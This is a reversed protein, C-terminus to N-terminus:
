YVPHRFVLWMSTGEFNTRSIYLLGYNDIFNDGTIFIILKTMSLLTWLWLFQMKKNMIWFSGFNTTSIKVRIAKNTAFIRELVRKRRTSRECYCLHQTETHNLQIKVCLRYKTNKKKGQNKCISRITQSFQFRYICVYVNFAM